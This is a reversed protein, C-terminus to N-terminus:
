LLVEIKLGDGNVTPFDGRVYVGHAVAEVDGTGSFASQGSPHTTIGSFALGRAYSNNFIVAAANNYRYNGNEVTRENEDIRASRAFGVNSVRVNEFEGEGFYVANVADGFMQVGDILSDCLTRSVTVGYKSCAQVNRIIINYTDGLQARTEPRNKDFYANDGIRVAAQARRRGDDFTGWYPNELAPKVKEANPLRLKYEEAKPATPDIEVSSQVNEICINYLKKGYHNLLRVNACRTTTAINRIIVGHISDDLGRVPQMSDNLCTLAVSDDQTYGSINEIVFDCCGTRLDIGDNNPCAGSSMFSINSVRGFSCYHFTMGWYRANVIRLNEIVIREANHMHIMTNVLTQYPLIEGLPGMPLSPSGANISNREVLGNHNGGDLVASGLGYIHIGYTRNKLDSAADTRAVDNKFMNDFANDALRLHCNDLCVCSGSHLLIARDIIWMNRGTRENHQPIVVREGSLVAEDVAAQIMAADDALHAYTNPNLSM